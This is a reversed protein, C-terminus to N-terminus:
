DDRNRTKRRKQVQVELELNRTLRKLVPLSPLPKPLSTHGDSLNSIILCHRSTNISNLPTWERAIVMLTV